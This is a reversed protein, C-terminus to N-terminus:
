FEKNILDYLYAIPNNRNKFNSFYTNIAFSLSIASISLLPLISFEPNTIISAISSSCSIITTFTGVTTKIGHEKLVNKYEELASELVDRIQQPSNHQSIRNTWSTFNKLKHIRKKDNRIDLVQEWSLEEEKISPFDQICISLADRNLFSNAKKIKYKLSKSKTLNRYNLLQIEKEFETLDHFVPSIHVGNYRNFNESSELIVSNRNSSYKFINDKIPTNSSMAIKYLDGISTRKAINETSAIKYLTGFDKLKPSRIFNGKRELVLVEEPISYYEYCYDLLSNPIWIKDFFLATVKPKVFGTALTEDKNYNIIKAM